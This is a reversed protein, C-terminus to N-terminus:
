RTATIKVAPEHVAYENSERRWVLLRPCVGAEQLKMGFTFIALPGGTLIVFDREEDMQGICHEVNKHWERALSSGSHIPLDFDTVFKLDGYRYAPTYDFSSRNDGGRVQEKLVWVTPRTNL